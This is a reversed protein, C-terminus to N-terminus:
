EDLSSKLKIKKFENEILKILQSLYEAKLYVISRKKDNLKHEHVTNTIVASEVINNTYENIYGTLYSFQQTASKRPSITEGAIEFRNLSYMGDYVVRDPKIQSIINNDKDYLTVNQNKNIQASTVRTNLKFENIDRNFGSVNFTNIKAVSSYSFSIKSDLFFVSSYNYKEEVYEDLKQSNFPWDFERNYLDNIMLVVWSYQADGYLRYSINEPTDADKIYYNELFYSNKFFNITNIKLLINKLEQNNYQLEPFQNFYM